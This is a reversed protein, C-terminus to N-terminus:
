QLLLKSMFDTGDWNDTERSPIQPIKTKRQAHPHNQATMLPHVVEGGSTSIQKLSQCTLRFLKFSWFTLVCCSFVRLSLKGRDTVSKKDERKKFTVREMRGNRGPDGVFTRKWRTPNRQCPTSQRTEGHQEMVWRMSARYCSSDRTKLFLSFVFCFVGSKQRLGSQCREPASPPSDHISIEASQRGLHGM